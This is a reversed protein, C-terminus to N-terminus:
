VRTFSISICSSLITEIESSQNQMAVGLSQTMFSAGSDDLWFYFWVSGITVRERVKERAKRWNCTESGLKSQNM